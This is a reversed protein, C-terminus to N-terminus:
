CSKEDHHHGEHSEVNHNHNELNNSQNCAVYIFSLITVCLIKINM